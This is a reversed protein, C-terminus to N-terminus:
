GLALRRVEAVAELQELPEYMPNLLLEGAGAEILPQLQEACQDAPGRLAVAETMGPRGYMGDLIPALKETARREDDEVAIYVRKAIPFTGPDRGAAELEERLIKSQTVFDSSASSGSGIWGDALRAARRLARPQGAGFWIPLTRRFPKPHVRVGAFRYIEGEYTAEEQTWLARMVEVNERLRRPHRDTPFGLAGESGDSMGLGVGVALRGGSLQDVTALEKALLAPNRRPLVIVAIGLAARRTLSAAYTLLHLGDLLPNHATRGGVASDLTWLGTFGLEEARPAYGRVLEAHDDHVLQPLSISFRVERM